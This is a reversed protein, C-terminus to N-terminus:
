LRSPSQGIAAEGATLNREHGPEIRAVGLLLLRDPTQPMLGNREDQQDLIDLQVHRTKAGVDFRMIQRHRVNGYRIRSSHLHIDLPTSLM